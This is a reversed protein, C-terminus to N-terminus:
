GKEKLDQEIIMLRRMAEILLNKVSTTDIDTSFNDLRVIASKINDMVGDLEDKDQSSM